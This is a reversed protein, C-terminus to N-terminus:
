IERAPISTANLFVRGGEYRLATRVSPRVRQIAAGNAMVPSCWQGEAPVDMAAFSSRIPIGDECALLTVDPEFGADKRRLSARTLAHGIAEM